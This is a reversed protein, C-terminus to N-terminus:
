DLAFLVGLSFYLLMRCLMDSHLQNGPDDTLCHVESVLM